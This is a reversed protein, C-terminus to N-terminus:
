LNAIRISEQTFSEEVWTDLGHRLEQDETDKGNGSYNQRARFLITQQRSTGQQKSREEKKLRGAAKLKQEAM